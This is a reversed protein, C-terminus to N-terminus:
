CLAAGLLGEETLNLSGKSHSVFNLSNDVNAAFRGFPLPRGSVFSGNQRLPTLDRPRLPLAGYHSPRHPNASMVLRQKRVRCTSSIRSCASRIISAGWFNVLVATADQFDRYEHYAERTELSEHIQCHGATPTCNSQQFPLRFTLSRPTSRCGSIRSPPLM